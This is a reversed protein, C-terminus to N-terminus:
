WSLADHATPPPCEWQPAARPLVPHRSRMAPPRATAKRIPSGIPIDTSATMSAPSSTVAGRLPRQGAINPHRQGRRSLLATGPNAWVHRPRHAPRPMHQEIEVIHHEAHGARKAAMSTLPRNSRQRVAPRVSRPRQRDREAPTAQVLDQGIQRPVLGVVRDLGLPDHGVHFEVRRQGGTGGGPQIVQESDARGDVPPDGHDAGQGLGGNQGGQAGSVQVPVDHGHSSPLALREEIGDGAM